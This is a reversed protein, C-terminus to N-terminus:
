GCAVISIGNPCYDEPTASGNMMRSYATAIETRHFVGLADMRQLAAWAQRKCEERNTKLQAQWANVKKVLERERAAEGKSLKDHAM